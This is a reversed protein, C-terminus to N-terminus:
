ADKMVTSRGTCGPGCTANLCVDNPLVSIAQCIRVNNSLDQVQGARVGRLEDTTLEALIEKKLILSRKRDM